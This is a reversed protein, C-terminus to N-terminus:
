MQHTGSPEPPVYKRRTGGILLSPTVRRRAAIRAASTTPYLRM